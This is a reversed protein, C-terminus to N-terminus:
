EEVNLELSKKNKSLKFMKVSIGRKRVEKYFRQHENSIIKEIDIGRKRSERYIFIKRRNLQRVGEEYYTQLEELSFDSFKVNVGGQSKPFVKEVFERKRIAEYFGSDEKHIESRSKGKYNENYYDQFDKLSFDSFKVLGSSKKEPFVRELFKKKRIFQYFSPDEQSVRGRCIGKYHELYYNQLDELSFNTFKGLRVTGSKKKPFIKDCLRKEIVKQYFGSDKKYVENRSMGEYHKKYYNQFDELEFGKWNRIENAM